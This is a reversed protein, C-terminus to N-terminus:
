TSYVWRGLFIAPLLLLLIAITPWCGRMGFAVTADLVIISLIGTKIASQVFQPTPKMVARVFRWGILIAIGVWLLAWYLQANLISTQEVQPLLRPFSWLMAIGALITILGGLLHTKSSQVAERRAFWTIGVIYVGIGGAVLYNAMTWPQTSASMGLLVNLFRCSGMALPGLPTRKLIRDYAYILLALVSAVIGPRLSPIVAICLYAVIVGLILLTRGIAAADRVTIRGSPLPRQPRECRDQGIDFVDNLIMGAIYLSSSSILLLFFINVTKPLSEHTFWFGMVVDAMATFVNPLRMLQLWALHRSPKPTADAM